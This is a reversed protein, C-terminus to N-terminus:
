KLEGNCAKLLNETLKGVWYDCAEKAHNWSGFKSRLAKTEVRKDVAAVLRIGTESDLIEMEAQADGVFSDSGTIVRKMASLALGIPMVTTVTDLLVMSEDADTLATRIILADDGEHNALKFKTMLNEKDMASDVLMELGFMVVGTAAVTEGSYGSTYGTVVTTPTSDYVKVYTVNHKPSSPPISYIASTVM